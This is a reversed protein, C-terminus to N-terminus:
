VKGLIGAGKKNTFQLVVLSKNAEKGRILSAVEKLKIPSIKVFSLVAKGIVLFEREM